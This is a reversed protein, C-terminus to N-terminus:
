FHMNNLYLPSVNSMDFQLDDIEIQIKSKFNLKMLYIETIYPSIIDIQIPIHNYTTTPFYSFLFIQMGPMHHLPKAHKIEVVPFPIQIGPPIKM